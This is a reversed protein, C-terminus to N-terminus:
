RGGGPFRKTEDETVSGAARPPIPSTPPPSSLSPQSPQPQFVPAPPPLPPSLYSSRLRQLQAKYRFVAWVIGLPMLVASIGAMGALLDLGLVGGITGFIAPSLALFLITLVLRQKPTMGDMMAGTPLSSPPPVLQGTGGSAVYGAVPTLALGCQRCFKTTETNPAGCRPCFM